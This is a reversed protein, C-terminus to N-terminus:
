TRPGAVRPQALSNVPESTTAGEGRQGIRLAADVASRVEAVTAPKALVGALAPGHGRPLAAGYGSMLVVAIGSRVGRAAAALTLGDMEEMLYDTLLVDHAADALLRLAEHASSTATVRYRPELVARLTSLVLDDDDVILVSGRSAEARAVGVREAPAAPGAVPLSVLFTTGADTSEVAITGRHRDVIGRVIALGLGTGAGVAKSTVFPEFM